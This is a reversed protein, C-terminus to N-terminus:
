IKKPLWGELIGKVMAEANKKKAEAYELQTKQNYIEKELNKIENLWYQLENM